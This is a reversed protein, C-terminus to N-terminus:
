VYSIVKNHYVLWDLAEIGTFEAVLKVCRAHFTFYLQCRFQITWMITGKTSFLPLERSGEYSEYCVRSSERSVLEQIFHGVKDEIFVANRVVVARM